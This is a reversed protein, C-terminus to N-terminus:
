LRPHSGPRHEGRGPWGPVACGQTVEVTSFGGSQITPVAATLYPLSSLSQM